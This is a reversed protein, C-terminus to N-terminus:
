LLCLFCLSNVPSTDIMLYTVSTSIVMTINENQRMLRESCEINLSSKNTFRLLSTFLQPVFSYLPCLLRLPNVLNIVGRLYSKPNSTTMLQDESQKTVRKGHEIILSANTAHLLLHHLRTRRSFNNQVQVMKVFTVQLIKVYRNSM